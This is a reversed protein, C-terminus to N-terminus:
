LDDSKVHYEFGRSQSTTVKEVVFDVINNLYKEVYRLHVPISLGRDCFLDNSDCYSQWFDGYEQCDNFRLRPFMGGGTSNGAHWPLGKHNTPDGLQIIAQISATYEHGIAPRPTFWFESVGCLGDGIVQAGQSYGM